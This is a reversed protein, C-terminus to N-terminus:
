VIIVGVIIGIFLGFIFYILEYSNVEKKLLWILTKNLETANSCNKDIKISQSINTIYLIKDEINFELWLNKDIKKYYTNNNGIFKHAKLIRKM